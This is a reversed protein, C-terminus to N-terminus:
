FSPPDPITADCPVVRCIQKEGPCMIANGQASWEWNFSEDSSYKVSHWRSSPTPAITSGTYIIGVQFGFYDSEIWKYKRIYSTGSISCAQLTAEGTTNYSDCDDSNSENGNETNGAFAMQLADLGVGPGEMDNFSVKMNLVALAMIMFASIAFIIKKKMKIIKLKNIM